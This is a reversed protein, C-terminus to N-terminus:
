YSVTHVLRPIVTLRLPEASGERIVVLDLRGRAVESNVLTSESVPLGNVSVILDGNQLGGQQAPSGETVSQVGYAQMDPIHICSLGVYYSLERCEVVNWSCPRWTNWYNSTVNWTGYHTRCHHHCINIWWNFHPQVTLHRPAHAVVHQIQPQNHHQNGFHQNVNHHLISSLNVPVHRIKTGTEQHVNNFRHSDPILTGSQHQRNPPLLATFDPRRDHKNIQGPRINVLSSSLNNHSNSNGNQHEVKPRRIGGNNGGNTVNGSAHHLTVNGLQSNNVNQGVRQRFTNGGNTSQANGPGLNGRFTGLRSKSDAFSVSAATVTIAFILIKCTKFCDM